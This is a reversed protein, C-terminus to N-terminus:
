NLFNKDESDKLFIAELTKNTEALKCNIPCHNVGVSKGIKYRIESDWIDKFRKTKTITGYLCDERGIMMCCVYVKGSPTIVPYFPHGHCKCFKLSAKTLVDRFKHGQIYIKYDGTEYDQLSILSNYLMGRWFPNVEPANKVVLPKVQFYDVGSQSFMYAAEKLDLYNDETLLFSVGIKTKSKVKRRLKVLEVINRLLAEFGDDVGHTKTYTKQGVADVSIRCWSLNEVIAKRITLDWLEKGNTILGQEIGALHAKTFVSNSYDYELPEGGGSYVIAKVGMERLDCIVDDVLAYDFLDGKPLNKFTCHPCNHTCINSLHWEVTIPKVSVPDTILQAVEPLHNLIKDSSFPGTYDEQFFDSENM